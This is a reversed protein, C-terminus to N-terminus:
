LFFSAKDAMEVLENHCSDIDEKFQHINCSRMTLQAIRYNPHNESVKQLHDLGKKPDHQANEPDLYKMGVEYHDIKQNQIDERVKSLLDQLSRALSWEQPGRTIFLIGFAGCLASLILDTLMTVLGELVGMSTALIPLTTHAVFAIGVFLASFLVVAAFILMASALIKLGANRKLTTAYREYVELRKLREEENIKPDILEITKELAEIDLGVGIRQYEVKDASKLVDDAASRYICAKPLNSIRSELRFRTSDRKRQWEDFNM